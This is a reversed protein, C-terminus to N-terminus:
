HGAGLVPAGFVNEFLPGILTWPGYFWAGYIMFWTMALPISIAIYSRWQKLTKFLMVGVLSSIPTILVATSLVHTDKWMNGSVPFIAGTLVGNITSPIFALWGSFYNMHPEIPSAIFAAFVLLLIVAIEIKTKIADVLDEGQGTVSSYLFLVGLCLLANRTVLLIGIAVAFECYDFLDATTKGTRGEEVTEISKAGVVQIDLRNTFVGLVGLFVLVPPLVPLMSYWDRMGYRLALPLMYVEGFYTILGGILAAIMCYARFKFQDRAPGDLRAAAVLLLVLFSDMFGSILGCLLPFAWLPIAQGGIKYPLPIRTIGLLAGLFLVLVITEQVVNFSHVNDRLIIMAVGVAGILFTELNWVKRPPHLVANM